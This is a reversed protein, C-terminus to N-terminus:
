GQTSTSGSNKESELRLEFPRFIPDRDFSFLKLPATCSKLVATRRKESWCSRRTTQSKERPREKAAWGPASFAGVTLKLKPEGPGAAEGAAVAAV